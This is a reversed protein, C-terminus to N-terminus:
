WGSMSKPLAASLDGGRGIHRQWESAFHWTIQTPPSFPHSEYNGSYTLWDSPATEARLIRDPGVQAGADIRTVALALAVFIGSKM